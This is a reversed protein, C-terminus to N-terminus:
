SAMYLAKKMCNGTSPYIDCKFFEYPAAARSRSRPAIDLKDRSGSACSALALGRPTIVRRGKSRLVGHGETRTLNLPYNKYQLALYFTGAVENVLCHGTLCKMRMSPQHGEDGFCVDHEVVTSQTIAWNTDFHQDSGVQLPVSGLWVRDGEHSDPWNLRLM